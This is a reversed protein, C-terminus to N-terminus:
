IIMYILYSFKAPPKMTTLLYHVGQWRMHHLFHTFHCSIHHQLSLYVDWIYNWMREKLQKMMYILLVYCRVFLSIDVVPSCSSCHAWFWWGLDTFLGSSIWFIGTSNGGTGAGLSCSSGSRRRRWWRRFFGDVGAGVSECLDKFNDGVDVGSVGPLVDERKRHYLRCHQTVSVAVNFSCAVRAAPCTTPSTNEAPSYGLATTTFFRFTFATSSSSLPFLCSFILYLLM